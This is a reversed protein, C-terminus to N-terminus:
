CGLWRCADYKQEGIYIVFHVHPGTAAGTMGIQGIIDGKEVNAGEPWYCMSSMHGYYTRYGNNHNIFVYYGNISTYGVEEITGRDSAYVPGYRNIANQIDVGSHFGWWANNYCGWHCTVHPNDVPWRFSGTGIGPIIMTGYEVVENVPALTVEERLVEQSDIEGNIYVEKYYVNKSGDEEEVKIRYVGERLEDNAVYVTSGAYVAEKAVREKTVIVTIPSRFFTVNLEMGTALLQTPSVLVDSNLTILQQATLGNKSAVWEVTDYEETTYTVMETGYGYSLFYIIDQVNTKIEDLSAYDRTVTYQEAVQVDIIREGYTTLEPPLQNNVIYNLSQADVYNLLYQDRAADFDELNRVYLVAGNSFEIKNVELAFLDNDLLYDTIEDDKNEYTFYSKEKVTYVDVSYSLKNDPFDKQYDRVYIEDLAKDVYDEETIVGILRGSDYLKVIEHSFFTRGVIEQAVISDELAATESVANVKFSTDHFFFTVIGALVICIVIVINEKRNKM